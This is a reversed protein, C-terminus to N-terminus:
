RQAGAHHGCDYQLLVINGVFWNLSLARKREREREVCVEASHALTTAVIVAVLLSAAAPTVKAIRSITVPWKKNLSVGLLVPALVV